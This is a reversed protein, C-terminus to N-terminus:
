FDVASTTHIHSVFDHDIKCHMIKHACSLSGTKFILSNLRKATTMCYHKRLFGTKLTCQM